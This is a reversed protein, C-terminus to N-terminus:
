IGWNAIILIVVAVLVGVLVWQWAVAMVGLAVAGGSLRVHNKHAWAFIGLGMAVVGLATYVMQYPHLPLHRPDYTSAHASEHM